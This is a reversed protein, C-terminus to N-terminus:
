SALRFLLAIWSQTLWTAPGMIFRLGGTLLLALFIFQGYRELALVVPHERPLLYRIIAGGDLPPCPLLNFMALGLNLQIMSAVYNAFLPMDREADYLPFGLRLLLVFIGSLLAAMLVNMAPGAMSILLDSMQMSIRRTMYRAHMSVFVPKGWGLTRGALVSHSAAAWMGILPFLLTGIPDIHALPNLTVRGQSRPLPDGLRDAVYAHGFEHVCISLVLM